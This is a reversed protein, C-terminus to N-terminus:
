KENEVENIMYGGKFLHVQKKYMKIIDGIIKPDYRPHLFCIIKLYCFNLRMTKSLKQEIKKGIEAKHQKYFHQKYFFAHLLQQM